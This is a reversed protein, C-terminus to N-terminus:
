PKVGSFNKAENKGKEFQQQYYERVEEPSFNLITGGSGFHQIFVRGIAYTSAGSFVANGAMGAVLTPTSLVKLLGLTASVPITGGMLSGIISKGLHKSFPVDYIKALSHLMKLQAGSLVALDLLPVPIAGIGLAALMYKKVIKEAEADKDTVVVTKNEIEEM